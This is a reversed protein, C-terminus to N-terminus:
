LPQIVYLVDVRDNRDLDVLEAIAVEGAYVRMIRPSQPEPQLWVGHLPDVLGLGLAHVALRDVVVAGLVDILSARALRPADIVRLYRVDDVHARSWIMGRPSGLGFGQRLCWERGWVPHGEGSGCFAPANGSPRRDGLRRMRWHGLERARAEPLDILVAGNRGLVTVRDAAPRVVVADPQMGWYHGRTLASYAVRQSMRPSAGLRRLGPPLTRATSQLEAVSPEGSRRPAAERGTVRRFASGIREIRGPAEAGPAQERQQQQGRPQAQERQQQGRPQAQERQQQGRPQAQERQRQGRPQAQERQQQQGRPQAQERQQQGRPQAQQIWVAENLGAARPTRMGAPTEVAALAATMVIIEIM